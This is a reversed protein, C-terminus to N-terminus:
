LHGRHQKQLSWQVPQRIPKIFRKWDQMEYESLRCAQDIEEPTVEGALAEEDIWDELMGAEKGEVGQSERKQCAYCKLMTMKEQVNM